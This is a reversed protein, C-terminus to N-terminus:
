LQQNFFTLSMDSYITKSCKQPTLRFCIVGLLRWHGAHQFCMITTHDAVVSDGPDQVSDALKTLSDDKTIPRSPNLQFARTIAEYSSYNIFPYASIKLLLKLLEPVSKAGSYKYWAFIASNQNTTHKSIVVPRPHICHRLYSKTNFLFVLKWNRWLELM